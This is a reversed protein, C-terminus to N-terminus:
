GKVSGITIGKVFYKQVFPYLLVIPGTAIVTMAMKFSEQPLETAVSIGSAQAMKQVGDLAAIMKYLYYQLSFFKENDVFLFCGYWDNWYSLAIFLGITALAPKSLPLVFQIFIRFDGGGDMKVSEIISEPISRMFNRLVLVNWVSFLGPITLALLPMQKFNLYRVCLIYWPVLGGSFLTTFYFFFAVKNAWVFSKRSLVYATMTSLFLATIGGCITAFLSVGYARGIEMPNKLILEYAKSSFEKPFLNYGNKIISAEATFSSSIIIIFPLLCLVAFVSLVSYALFKFIIEDKSKM